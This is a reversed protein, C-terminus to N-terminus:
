RETVKVIREPEFTAVRIARIAARVEVERQEIEDAADDRAEVVRWVRGEAVMSPGIGSIYGDGPEYCPPQLEWAVGVGHEEDTEVLEFLMARCAPRHCKDCATDYTIDFRRLDGFREVRECLEGNITKREPM